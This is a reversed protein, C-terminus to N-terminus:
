VSLVSYLLSLYLFRLSALYTGGNWCPEGRLSISPAVSEKLTERDDLRGDEVDAFVPEGFVGAPDFEDAGFGERLHHGKGVDV